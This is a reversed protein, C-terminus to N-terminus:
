RAVALAGVPSRAAVKGVEVTLAKAWAELDPRYYATLRHRFRRYPPGNAALRALSRPAIPYGLATLYAAAEKRTLWDKAGGLAMGYATDGHAKTM